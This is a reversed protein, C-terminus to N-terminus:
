HFYSAGFQKLKIIWNQSTALISWQTMFCPPLPLNFIIITNLIFGKISKHYQNIVKRNIKEHNDDNNAKPNSMQRLLEKRKQPMSEHDESELKFKRWDNIVGKPGASVVPM